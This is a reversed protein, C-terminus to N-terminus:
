HFNGTSIVDVFHRPKIDPDDALLWAARNNRIRIFPAAMASGSVPDLGALKSVAFCEPLEAFQQEWFIHYIPIGESEHNFQCRYHYRLSKSAM